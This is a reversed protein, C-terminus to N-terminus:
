DKAQAAPEAAIAEIEVLCGDHLEPVPVVARAPRAEGMFEAYIANFRPWNGIGVIYVTVKLLDAPGCGAAQAIALLNGVAQRAQDDFSSKALVSGDAAVPLQGSIYVLGGHSVAHSYHGRPPPLTTAEICEIV